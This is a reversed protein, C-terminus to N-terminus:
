NCDGDPENYQLTIRIPQPRADLDTCDQDFEGSSENFPLRTLGPPEDFLLGVHDFGRPHEAMDAKKNTAEHSCSGRYDPPPEGMLAKGVQCSLSWDPSDM